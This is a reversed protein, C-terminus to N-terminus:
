PNVQKKPAAPMEAKAESSLSKGFRKRKAAAAAKSAQNVKRSDVQPSLCEGKPNESISVQKRSKGTEQKRLQPPTDEPVPSNQTKELDTSTKKQKLITAPQQAAAQQTQQQILERLVEKRRQM